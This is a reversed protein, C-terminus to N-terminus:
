RMGNNNDSRDKRSRSRIAVPAKPNNPYEHKKLTKAMCAYVDYMLKSNIKM